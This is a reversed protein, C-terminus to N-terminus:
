ESDASVLREILEEVNGSKPVDRRSSTPCSAKILGESPGQMRSRQPGSLVSAAKEQQKKAEEALNRKNVLLIAETRCHVPLWRSIAANQHQERIGGM